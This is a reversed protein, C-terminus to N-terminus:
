QYCSEHIVLPFACSELRNEHFGARQTCSGNFPPGCPGFPAWVAGLLAWLPGLSAWLLGLSAWKPNVKHKRITKRVADAKPPRGDMKRVKAAIAFPKAGAEALGVLRGRTFEDKQMMSGSVM